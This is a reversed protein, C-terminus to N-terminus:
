ASASSTLSLSCTACRPKGCSSERGLCGVSALKTRHLIMLHLIFAILATAIWAYRSVFLAAQQFLLGRPGPFSNMARMSGKGAKLSTILAAGHDGPFDDELDRGELIQDMPVLRDPGRPTRGWSDVYYWSTGLKVASAFHPTHSVAVTAYPFGSRRLLEQVVIGQQSCGAWPHDLVDEPDIKTRFNRWLLGSLNAIWNECFTYESYGHYFKARAFNQIGLVREYDTAFRGNPTFSPLAALAEDITRARQAVPHAINTDDAPKSFQYAECTGFTAVATAVSLGASLALATIRATRLSILM